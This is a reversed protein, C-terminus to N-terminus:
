EPMGRSLERLFEGARERLDEAGQAEALAFVLVMGLNCQGAIISPAGPGDPDNLVRQIHQAASLRAADGPEMWLTLLEIAVRTSATAPNMESM